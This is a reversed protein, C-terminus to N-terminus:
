QGVRDESHGKRSPEQTGNTLILTDTEEWGRFDLLVSHQTFLSPAQIHTQPSIVATQMALFLAPPANRSSRGM